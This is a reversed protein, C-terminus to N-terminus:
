IAEKSFCAIWVSSAGITQENLYVEEPVQSLYCLKLNSNKLIIECIKSASNQFNFNPDYDVMPNIDHLFFFHGGSKLSDEISKALIKLDKSNLHYLCHRAIIASVNKSEIKPMAVKIFHTKSTHIKALDIANQCFNEGCTKFGKKELELLFPINGFGIDVILQGKHIELISILNTNEFKRYKFIQHPNNKYWDEYHNLINQQYNSLAM